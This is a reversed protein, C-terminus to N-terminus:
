SALWILKSYHTIIIISVNTTQLLYKDLLDIIEQYDRGDENVRDKPTGGFQDRCGHLVM